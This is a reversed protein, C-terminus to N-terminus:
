ARFHEISDPVSLGEAGDGSLGLRTLTSRLIRANRGNLGERAAVSAMMSFFRAWASPGRRDELSPAADGAAAAAVLWAVPVETEGSYIILEPTLDEAHPALWYAPTTGFVVSLALVEDVTINRDGSEAYACVARTWDCGARSMRVALQEQTWGAEDRAHRISRSVLHNLNTKADLRVSRDQIM